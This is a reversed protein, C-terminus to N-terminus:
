ASNLEIQTQIDDVRNFDRRFLSIYLSRLKTRAILRVKSQLFVYILPDCLLNVRFATLIINRFNDSHNNTFAYVISPIAELFLFSILLVTVTIIFQSRDSSRTAELSFRRRALVCFISGYTVAFLVLCLMDLYPWFYINMAERLHHYAICSGIVALTISSLWCSVITRLIFTRRVFVKHQIPFNCGVFRDVTLIIIMAYWVLYQGGLFPWWRYFYITHEAKFHIFLLDAMWFIALFVNCSSLSVLIMMQNCSGDKNTLRLFYIGSSNLLVVLASISSHLM